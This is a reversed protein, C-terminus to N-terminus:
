PNRDYCHMGHLVLHLAANVELDVGFVTLRMSHDPPVIVIKNHHGEIYVTRYSGLQEVLANRPLIKSRM